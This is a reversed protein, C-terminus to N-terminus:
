HILFNLRHGQQEETAMTKPSGVHSLSSTNAASKFIFIFIIPTDPPLCASGTYWYAMIGLVRIKFACLMNSFYTFSSFIWSKFRCGDSKSVFTGISISVQFICSSFMRAVQCVGTHTQAYSMIELYWLHFWISMM